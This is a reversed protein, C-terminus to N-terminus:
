PSRSTEDSIRRFRNNASIEGSTKSLKQPDQPASDIISVEAPKTQFGGLGICLSVPWRM